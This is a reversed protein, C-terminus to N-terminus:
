TAALVAAADHHSRWGLEVAARRCNLLLTDALGNIWAPEGGWGWRSWAFELGARAARLPVPVAFRHRGRIAGRYDFHDEIALNFPGRVERQLALLVARAVDDEHVCQLRPQPEALVPYCPLDLLQRLLPLANPGLIVHPRLRVCEPFEIALMRELHAKHQGYLFGPLPALPAGEALHVGSGYVAASSMHVLRKLGARRAAHFVNHGGRVNVDFMEEESMRGRLVVFALHVLADHGRILAPLDPNRIDLRSAQFKAHAYNAAAQDIGTVREIGPHECLAPLLANALRSSSGTVFVKM